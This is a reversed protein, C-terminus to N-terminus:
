ENEQKPSGAESAGEAAGARENQESGREHSLTYNLTEIEGQKSGYHVSAGEYENQALLTVRVRERKLVQVVNVTGKRDLQHNSVARGMQYVKRM